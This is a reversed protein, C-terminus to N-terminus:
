IWMWWNTEPTYCHSTYHSYPPSKYYHKFLMFLSFLSTNSFIKLIWCSILMFTPQVCQFILLLDESKYTRQVSRNQVARLQDNFNGQTPPFLLNWLPLHVSHPSFDKRKYKKLFKHRFGNDKLCPKASENIRRQLQPTSLHSFHTHIYIYVYIYIHIYVYVYIWVWM